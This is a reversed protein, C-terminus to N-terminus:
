TTDQEAFSLLWNGRDLLPREGVSWDTRGLPRVAHVSRHDVALSLPPRADSLFGHATLVSDPVLGAPVALVTSEEHDRVVRDLIRALAARRRGDGALPQVDALQTITTGGHTTRTRTVAAALRESGTSAVYTTRDWAPSGFRWGYFAEDRLAHIADPVASRYLDLLTGVAVSERTTVSVDEPLDALSDRLRQHSRALGSAVGGFLGDVPDDLRDELLHTPDQVRYWTTLPGAVRWGLKRYGSLANETPQSFVVSVDDAYHDLAAETMRSFLGQRRHDPHVMTDVTLLAIPTTEGARLRLAIFGRTGVIEGDHEAVFLPPADLYPADLFRWQFWAPSRPRDWVTEYLRLFGDDDGPRFPRVAYEERSESSTM